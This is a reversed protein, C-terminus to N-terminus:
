YVEVTADLLLSVLCLNELLGTLDMFQWTEPDSEHLIHLAADLELHQAMDM